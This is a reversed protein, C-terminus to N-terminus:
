FVVCCSQASIHIRCERWSLSPCYASRGEQLMVGRGDLFLLVVVVVVLVLLFDLFWLV